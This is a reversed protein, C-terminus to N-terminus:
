RSLVSISTALAPAPSKSQAAQAIPPRPSASRSSKTIAQSPPFPSPRATPTAPVGSSRSRSRAAPLAASISAAKYKKGKVLAFGSQQIGHPSASDLSIRPSQDGVFPKEKDLTVAEDPGVPKWTHPQMGRFAGGGQRRPPAEPVKSTIPFYFKRDDIMEAWLSRYMLLGGHEIFGGYLYKSIPAGIQGADITSTIAAPSAAEQARSKCGYFGIFFCVALLVGITRALVASRSSTGTM